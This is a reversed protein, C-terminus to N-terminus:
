LGTSFEEEFSLKPPKRRTEDSTISTICKRGPPPKSNSIENVWSAKSLDTM